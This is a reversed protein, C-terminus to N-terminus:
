KQKDNIEENESPVEQKEEIDCIEENLINGRLYMTGADFAHNLVDKVSVEELLFYEETIIGWWTEFDIKRFQIDKTEEVWKKYKEVEM